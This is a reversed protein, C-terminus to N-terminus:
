PVLASHDDLVRHYLAVHDRVFRTTSFRRTISARCAHRDLDGVQAVRAVMDAEDRCLFGTRGHEIIEPAAGEPFALVPTGCALAEIMVLGFPEPWRIPNILAEAGGLLDLKRRGGVEGVYVISDSLLPEVQETFYRREDPEWMKAAIVLPKHAARAIAIARHSGKDANMRGLFLLYGGDGAGIPFADLDLGHHIVAAIAINPASARQAHSIAIIPVRDSFAAFHATMEPTFPGHNTTVVPLDPFWQGAWSPGTLTHDHVIDVGALEEYARRVHALEVGSDATTGLAQPFLWARPVPCTSDGTTFLRVDHGAAVLGRALQDVVFETGGYVPPPVAVWPPAIIGIRLRGSRSTEKM